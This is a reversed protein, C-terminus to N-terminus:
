GLLIDLVFLFVPIAVCGIWFEPKKYFSREKNSTNDAFSQSKDAIANRGKKTIKLPTFSDHVISQYEILGDDLLDDLDTMISSYTGCKKHVANTLEAFTYENLANNLILLAIHKSENM